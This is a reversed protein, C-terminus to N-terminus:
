KGAKPGRRHIGRGAEESALRVFEGRGQISPWYYFEYAMHLSRRRGENPKPLPHSKELSM